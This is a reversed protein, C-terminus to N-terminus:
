RISFMAYVVFLIVVLIFLVCLLVLFLVSRAIVLLFRILCGPKSEYRRWCEKHFPQKELEEEREGQQDTGGGMIIGPLCGLCGCGSTPESPDRTLRRTSKVVERVTLDSLDIEGKCLYCIPRQM